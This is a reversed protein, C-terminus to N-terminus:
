GLITPFDLEQLCCYQQAALTGKSVPFAEFM